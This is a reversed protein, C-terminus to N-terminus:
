EVFTHDAILKNKRYVSCYIIGANNWGIMFRGRGFYRLYNSVSEREWKLKQLTLDYERTITTDTGTLVVYISSKDIFCTAMYGPDTTREGLLAPQPALSYSRLVSSPHDNKSVLFSKKGARCFQFDTLGAPRFSNFVVHNKHDIYTIPGNTFTETYWYLIGGRPEFSTRLYGPTDDSLSHTNRLKKNRYMAFHLLPFEFEIEVFLDNFEPTVCVGYFPPVDWLVKNLKLNLVQCSTKGTYIDMLVIIVSKKHFYARLVMNSVVHTGVPTIAKRSIKFMTFNASFENRKLLLLYKRNFCAVFNNTGAFEPTSDTDLLVRQKHDRLLLRESITDSHHKFNVIGFKNTGSIQFSYSTNKFYLASGDTACEANSYKSTFTPVSEYWNITDPYWQLSFPGEETSFRGGVQIYYTVGSRAQFNVFSQFSLMLPIYAFDDNDKIKFLMRLSPGTYVSLVTNFGTGRTDFSYWGDAPCHWTWWVTNSGAYSGAYIRPEDPEITADINNGGTSGSPGSISTANAFNDNAPAASAPFSFLFPALFLLICSVPLIRVIRIM